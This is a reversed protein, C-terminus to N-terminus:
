QQGGNVLLLIDDLRWALRGNIVVPQIPGNGLCHWKRLTQPRRNLQVAADNTSLIKPLGNNNM